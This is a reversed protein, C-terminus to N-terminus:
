RILGGINILGNLGASILDKSLYKVIYNEMKKILNRANIFEVALVADRVILCWQWM